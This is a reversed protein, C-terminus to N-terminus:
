KKVIACVMECRAVKKDNDISSLGMGDLMPTGKACTWVIIDQFGASSLAWQLFRPTIACRHSEGDSAQNGYIQESLNKYEDLDYQGKKNLYEEFWDNEVWEKALATLNPATIILKRLVPVIKYINFHEIVQILEAEDAYDDKFPMHEIDADVFTAGKEYIADKYIGKKTAAGKKLEDINIFKDVNVYEKWIGIGCGLNLKIKKKQNKGM